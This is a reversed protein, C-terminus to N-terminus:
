SPWTTSTTSTSSSAWRAASSSPRRARHRRGRLGRPPAAHLARGDHALDRLAVCRTTPSASAPSASGSGASRTAVPVPLLVRARCIGTRARRTTGVSSAGSFRALWPGAGRSARSPRSRTPRRAPTATPAERRLPAPQEYRCTCSAPARVSEPRPAGATVEPMCHIRDSETAPASSTITGTTAGGATRCASARSGCSGPSRSSMPRIPASRTSYAASAAGVREDADLVLVWDTDLPRPGLRARARRNRHTRPAVGGRVDTIEVTRDTSEM